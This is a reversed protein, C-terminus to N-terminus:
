RSLFQPSVYSTDSLCHLIDHARQRVVVEDAKKQLNLTETRVTDMFERYYTKRLRDARTVSMEDGNIFVQRLGAKRADALSIAINLYRAAADGELVTFQPMDKDNDFM